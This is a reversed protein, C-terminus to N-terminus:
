KQKLILLTIDDYTKQTGIYQQVDKILTDKIREAPKDWHRALLACMRELEYQEGAMNEAETIGDTYLVVGDGPELKIFTEDVFDTIDGDLGIPFGLNMTDILEIQGDKRVVILEEHQGSLRLHGSPHYDLLSLSLSKNAQMREVNDYITRNVVNLFHTSNTEGSTLLTRVATQTMLMLMGSELGHGTVDGIGIKIHGNHQLIDYYDGGVEDAPKMFSAIDLGKIRQLEDKSPLLMQQLQRTVDLETGLRFNEATLQENLMNIQDNAVSLESHRLEIDTFSAQLQQSMMEFSLTLRGIEDNGAPPLTTDLNGRGMEEAAVSLAELPTSIFHKILYFVIFAAFLSVIGLVWLIRQIIQAQVAQTEAGSIAISYVAEPTDRGVVWPVYLAQAFTGYADEDKGEVGNQLAARWLEENVTTVGNMQSVVTEDQNHQNDETGSEASSDQLSTAIVNGKSDHIRLVLDTRNFNLTQLFADDILLGASVAVKEGNLNQLPVARILLWGEPTPLLTTNDKLSLAQQLADELGLITNSDSQLLFEGNLRMLELHDLGYRFRLAQSLRRLSNSSGDRNVSTILDADVAISLAINELDSIQDTFRQALLHREQSLRITSVRDEFQSIAGVMTFITVMVLLILVGLTLILIKIPLSINRIVQNLGRESDSSNFQKMVSNKSILLPSWAM